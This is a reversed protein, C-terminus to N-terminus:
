QEILDGLILSQILFDNVVVKVADSALHECAAKLDKEDVFIWKRGQGATLDKASKYDVTREVRGAGVALALFIYPKRKEEAAKGRGTVLIVTEGSWLNPRAEVMVGAKATTLDRVPQSLIRSRVAGGLISSEGAPLLYPEWGVIEKKAICREVWKGSLCPLNLALAQMYKPKRSHKDALLAAFGLNAYEPKLSLRGTSNSVSVSHFLEHFGDALVLGGNRTVYGSLANKEPVSECSIAFAM